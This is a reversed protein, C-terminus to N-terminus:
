GGTEKSLKPRWCLYGLPGLLPILAILWFMLSNDLGRRVFDDGLITPFLLCLLVFDLSMVHIFRNTQWQAIFDSWNGEVLGYFLFIITLVSLLFGLLSSDFFQLVRDKEGILQTHPQRFALYPLLAFAGLALSAIVFPFAKLPQQQGDALLVGAYIAPWIGMLNFLAIILPNIDHWNGTSLHTILELTNSSPQPALTFAYVVFILWILGFIIKRLM